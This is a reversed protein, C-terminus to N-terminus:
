DHMAPAFRASIQGAFGSRNSGPRIFRWVLNPSGETRHSDAAIARSEVHTLALRLMM